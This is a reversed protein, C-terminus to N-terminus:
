LEYRQMLHSEFMGTLELSKVGIFGLQAGNSQIRMCPTLVSGSVEVSVDEWVVKHNCFGGVVFSGFRENIVIDFQQYIADFDSFSGLSVETENPYVIYAVSNTKVVFYFGNDDPAGVRGFSFGITYRNSPVHDLRIVGRLRVPLLAHRFYTIRQAADPELKPLMQIEESTTLLSGEGTKVWKREDFVKM